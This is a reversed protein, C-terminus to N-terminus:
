DERTWYGYLCKEGSDWIDIYQGGSVGVVHNAVILFYKGTKHEKTFGKVTPRKTGKKNSIGTYKWGNEKLYAEYCEKWNLPCYLKRGIVTLEDYIDLWSKETVICLARIVCDGVEKKAPNPNYYKYLKNKM